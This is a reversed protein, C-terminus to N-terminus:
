VTCVLRGLNAPGTVGPSVADSKQGKLSAEFRQLRELIEQERAADDKRNAKNYANLLTTHVMVSDPAQRTAAELEEVARDTEGLKLLIRGLVWHGAFLEPASQVAERALELGGSPDNLYHARITAIQLLTM